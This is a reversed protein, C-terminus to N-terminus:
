DGGGGGGGDGGGSDSCGADGSDCGDSSSYAATSGDGTGARDRAPKRSHNVFAFVIVLGVMMVIVTEM